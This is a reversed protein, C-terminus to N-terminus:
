EEQKDFFNANGCILTTFSSIITACIIVFINNSIIIVVISLMLVVLAMIDFIEALNFHEKKSM